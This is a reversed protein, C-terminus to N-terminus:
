RTGIYLDGHALEDEFLHHHDHHHHHHYRKLYKWHMLTNAMM